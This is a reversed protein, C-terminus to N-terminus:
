VGTYGYRALIAKHKRQQVGGATEGLERALGRWSKTELTQWATVVRQDYDPIAQPTPSQGMPTWGYRLPPKGIGQGFDVTAYHQGTGVKYLDVDAGFCSMIRGQGEIGMSKVDKTHTGVVVFMGVKRGEILMPKLFGKGVDLGLPAICDVLLTWEDIILMHQEFQATVKGQDYETYRDNLMKSTAIMHEKIAQYDRGGGVVNSTQWNGQQNNSDIVTVSYGRAIYRGELLRLVTSKGADSGGTIIVRQKGEIAQILDSMTPAELQLAPPPAIQKVGKPIFEHVSKLLVVGSGTDVVKLRETEVEYRDIRKKLMWGTFGLHIVGYGFALVGAGGVIWPIVEWAAVMALVVVVSLAVGFVITIRTRGNDIYITDRHTQRRKTM